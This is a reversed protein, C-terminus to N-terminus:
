LGEDEEIEGAPTDPTFCACGGWEDTDDGLVCSPDAQAAAAAELELRYERLTMPRRKQGPALNEKRRDVLIAVDKGLYERLEQEKAEHYAYVEPLTELLHKFHAKGAKVCFGGCNNHPFGLQYLRPPEIGSARLRDLWEEKMLLPSETLPAEVQWPHWYPVAKTFRHEETWDIGLYIVTSLPDFHEEIYRRLLERKLIRSCPDVRSNGLFREDHFVQWVDRGETVKVLEADPVDAAAEELFRYLDPDEMLTDAFLLVLRDGEAFRTERVRVATAWSGTGGSFMVIHNTM